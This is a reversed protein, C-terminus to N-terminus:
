DTYFLFPTWTQGGDSSVHLTGPNAADGLLGKKAAVLAWRYSSDGNSLSDTPQPVINGFAKVEANLLLYSTTIQIGPGGSFGNIYGLATVGNMFYIIANSDTHLYLDGNISVDGNATYTYGIGTESDNVGQTNIADGGKSVGSAWSFSVDGSASQFTSSAVISSWGSELLSKNRAAVRAYLYDYPKTVDALEYSNAAVYGDYYIASMNSNGIQIHYDKLRPDTSKIWTWRWKRGVGGGGTLGTPVALTSTDGEPVIGTSFGSSKKGWPTVTVIKFAYNSQQDATRFEFQTAAPTGVLVYSGGSKQAWVEYHDVFPWTSATWSLRIVSITTGDKLQDVSETLVLNSANTPIASPDPLNTDPYTPETVIADSYSAPDYETAYFTYSGDDQPEVATAQMLKADLGLSHTVPFVDGPEIGKSNYTNFQVKLDLLRTNLLYTALRTAQSLTLCGTLDYNGEHVEDNPGLTPDVIEDAVTEWTAPDTWSWTVLNIVDQSQIPLVKLGWIEKEVFGEVADVPQACSIRFEGETFIVAGLFHRCVTAVADQLKGSTFLYNFEYRKQQNPAAGLLADCYDAAASVSDWDILTTDIRGGYTTNTLLDALVLAPNTSYATTVTRPDYIKRGRCVATVNPLDQIDTTVSFRMYLYAIGTLPDAFTGDYASLGCVAQAQTGTYKEVYVASGYASSDKNNIQISEIADIEGELLLYIAHLVNNIVNLYVFLGPVQRRGHLVPLYGNAPSVTSNTPSAKQAITSMGAAPSSQPSYYFPGNNTLAGLSQARSMIAAFPSDSFPITM